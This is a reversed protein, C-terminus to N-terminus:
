FKVSERNKIECFIISRQDENQLKKEETLDIKSLEKM